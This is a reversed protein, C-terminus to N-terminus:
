NDDRSLRDELLIMTTILSLVTLVFALISSAEPSILPERPPVFVIDGAELIPNEVGIQTLLRDIDVVKIHEHGGKSRKISVESVAAQPNLGGTQTLLELLTTRIPVHYLGPRGVAGLVHVPLLVEGPYRGIGFESGRPMSVEPLSASPQRTEQARAGTSASLLMSLAMLIAITQRVSEAQQAM